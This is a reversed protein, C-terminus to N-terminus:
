NVTQIPCCILICFTVRRVSSRARPEHHLVQRRFLDGHQQGVHEHIHRVQAYWLAPAPLFPRAAVFVNFIASCSASRMSRVPSNGVM